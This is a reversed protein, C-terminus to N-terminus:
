RELIEHFHIAQGFRKRGEHHGGKQAQQGKQKKTKDKAIKHSVKFPLCVHRNEPYLPMGKGQYTCESLNGKKRTHIRCPGVPVMETNFLPNIKQFLGEMVSAHKSVM